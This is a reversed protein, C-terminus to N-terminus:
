ANKNQEEKNAMDGTLAPKFISDKEAQAAAMEEDFTKTTVRRKVAIEHLTQASIPYGLNRATAMEVMTQGTLPIEGFEKNPKVEVEEPDENVWTAISKLIKELAEAGTEAIQNMDATRAAVRIRLSDGSERERSTTDLTQAGMSGGRRELNELAARQEEL